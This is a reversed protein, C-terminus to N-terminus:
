ARKGVKLCENNYIFPYVQIHVFLKEQIEIKTHFFYNNKDQSFILLTMPISM